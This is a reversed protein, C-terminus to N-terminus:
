LETSVRCKSINSLMKVTNDTASQGLPSIWQSFLARKEEICSVNLVDSNLASLLMFEMQEEDEPVSFLHLYSKYGFRKSWESNRYDLLFPMVVHRAAVAAELIATTQLGLVVHSCLIAEHIDYRDNIELNHIQQLDVGLRDALEYFDTISQDEKKPKLLFKVDPHSKAMLIIKRMVRSFLEKPVGPPRELGDSDIITEQRFGPSFYLVLVQKEQNQNLSEDTLFSQQVFNDMRPAGCVTVQDNRVFGSELFMKKMIENHVAIHTGLYSGFRKHRNVSGEYARPYMLLGERYLVVSPINCAESAVCWDLDEVYRVNPSVVVSIEYRHSLRRLVKFLYEQCRVKSEDVTPNSGVQYHEVPDPSHGYFADKILYQLGVDIVLIAVASNSALAELDGRFYDEHLALVVLKNKLSNTKVHIDTGISTRQRVFFRIFFRTLHIHDNRLLIKLLIKVLYRGAQLLM